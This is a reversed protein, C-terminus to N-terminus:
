IMMMTVDDGRWIMIFVRRSSHIDPKSNFWGRDCVRVAARIFMKEENNNFVAVRITIIVIVKGVIVFNFVKLAVM